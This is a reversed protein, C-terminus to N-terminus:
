GTLYRWSKQLSEKHPYLSRGIRDLLCSEIKFERFEDAQQDPKSVLALIEGARRVISILRPQANEQMEAIWSKSGRSGM